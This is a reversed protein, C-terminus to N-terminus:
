SPRATIWRAWSTSIGGTRVITGLAALPFSGALGLTGAALRVVGQNRWSNGDLMIYSTDGTVEITGHNIVNILRGYAGRVTIDPGLHLV